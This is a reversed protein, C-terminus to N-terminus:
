DKKAKTRRRSKEIKPTDGNPIGFTVTRKVIEIMNSTSVRIIDPVRALPGTLFDLLEQNNRFLASAYIDYEGAVVGVFHLEQIEALKQAVSRIKSPQTQIEFIVWTSYGILLPNTVVAFEIMGTKALLALRHRVTSEPM